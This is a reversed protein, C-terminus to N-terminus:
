DIIPVASVNSWFASQEEQPKWLWMAAIRESGSVNQIRECCFQVFFFKNNGKFDANPNKVPRRAEERAYTPVVHINWDRTWGRCKGPESQVPSTFGTLTKDIWDFLDTHFGKGKTQNRLKIPWKICLDGM